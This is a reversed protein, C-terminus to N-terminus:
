CKHSSLPCDMIVALQSHAAFAQQRMAELVALEDKRVYFKM